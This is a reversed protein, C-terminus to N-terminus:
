YQFYINKCIKSATKSLSVQCTEPKQGSAIAEKVINWSRFNGSNDGIIKLKAYAIKLELKSDNQILQCQFYLQICWFNVKFFALFNDTQLPTYIKAVDQLIIFIKFALLSFAKFIPFLSHYIKYNPFRDQFNMPKQHNEQFM